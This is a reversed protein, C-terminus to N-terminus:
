ISQWNTKGAGGHVPPWYQQILDYMRVAVPKDLAVLMAKGQYGRESLTAGYWIEPLTM